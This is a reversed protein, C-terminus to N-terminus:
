QGRTLPTLGKVLCVDHKELLDHTQEIMVITDKSVAPEFRAKVAMQTRAPLRVPKSGHFILCVVVELEDRIEGIKSLDNEQLNIRKELLGRREELYM